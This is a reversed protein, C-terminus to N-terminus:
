RFWDGIVNLLCNTCISQRRTKHYLDTISIWSINRFTIDESYHLHPESHEQDGKEDFWFLGHSLGNRLECDIDTLTDSKNIGIDQLRWLLTGLTTEKNLHKDKDLKMIFLLASRFEEVYQLFVFIMESFLLYRLDDETLGYPKNLEIFKKLRQKSDAKIKDVFMDFFMNFAHTAKRVNWLVDMFKMREEEGQESKLESRLYDKKELDAIMDYFDSAFKYCLRQEEKSLESSKCYEDTM